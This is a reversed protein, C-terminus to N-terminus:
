FPTGWREFVHIQLGQKKRLRKIEWASCCIVSENPMNKCWECTILQPVKTWVREREKVRNNCRWGRVLTWNSYNSKCSLIAASCWCATTLTPSRTKATKCFCTTHPYTALQCRNYERKLVPKLVTHTLSLNRLENVNPFRWFFNLFVWQNKKRSCMISREKLFYEM